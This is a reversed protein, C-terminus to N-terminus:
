VRDVMILYDVGGNSQETADTRTSYAETLAFHIEPLSKVRM